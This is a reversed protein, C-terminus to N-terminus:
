KSTKIVLDKLNSLAKSGPTEAIKAETGQTTGPLIGRSIEHSTGGNLFLPLLSPEALKEIEFDSRSKTQVTSSATSSGIAVHKKMKIDTYIVDSFAKAIKTGMDKSGFAPTMKTKGDELDAEVAQAICILNGPFAQFQSTFFESYKRLGGWDDREPKYDVPKDKTLYALMSASLQTVSDVVTITHPDYFSIDLHDVPKSDKRCLPCNVKGHEQCIDAKGTKFLILLTQVAIPYSASDPLGIYNINSLWEPPLKALTDKSNELDIWNLKFKEACKAALTSKGTGSLGMILVRHSPSISDKTLIM